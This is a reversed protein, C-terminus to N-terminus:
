VFGGEQRGLWGRMWGGLRRRARKAPRTREGRQYRALEEALAAATPYRHEPKKHLCKRCIADLDDDVAPEVDHAWPAEDNVVAMVTAIPTPGQFPPQSTLLTYLLTGLGWVDVSPSFDQWTGLAQEPAM